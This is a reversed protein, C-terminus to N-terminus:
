LTVESHGDIFSRHGDIIIRGGRDHHSEIDAIDIKVTLKFQVTCYFNNCQFRKAMISSHM